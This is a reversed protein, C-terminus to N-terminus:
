VNCEDLLARINHEPASISSPLVVRNPRLKAGGSDQSELTSGETMVQLNARNRSTASLREKWIRGDNLISPEPLPCTVPQDNNFPEVPHEVPKFEVALELGYNAVTAASVSGGIGTTAPAETRADIASQSRRHGTRSGSFRSFLSVM